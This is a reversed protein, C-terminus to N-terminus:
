PTVQRLFRSLMDFLAPVDVSPAPRFRSDGLAQGVGKSFEESDAYGDLLELWGPGSAPRANADQLAHVLLRKLLENSEHVFDAADITSQQYQGYLDRLLRQAERIPRLRRQRNRWYRLLVALGALALAALLWWGPAPPWWGPPLPLHIDRLQALADTPM